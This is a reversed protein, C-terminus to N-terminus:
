PGHIIHPKCRERFGRGAQWVILPSGIESFLVKVLVAFYRIKRLFRTGKWPEGM